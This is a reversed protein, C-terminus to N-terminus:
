RHGNFRNNIINKLYEIDTSNKNAQKGAHDILMLLFM